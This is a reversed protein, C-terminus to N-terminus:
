RRKRDLWKELHIPRRQESAQLRDAPKDRALVLAPNEPKLFPEEVAHDLMAPLPSYFGLVNLMGLPQPM